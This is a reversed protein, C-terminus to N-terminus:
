ARQPRRARTALGQDISRRFAAFSGALGRGRRRSWTAVVAGLTLFAWDLPPDWWRNSPWQRWERYALIPAAVWGFWPVAVLSRSAWIPAAGILFHGPQDIAQKGVEKLIRSTPWRVAGASLTAHPIRQPVAGLDARAMDLSDGLDSGSTKASRNMEHHPNVLTDGLSRSSAILFSILFLMLICFTHRSRSQVKFAGHARM